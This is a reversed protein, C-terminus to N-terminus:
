EYYIKRRDCWWLTEVNKVNKQVYEIYTLYWYKYFNKKNFLERIIVSTRNTKRNFKIKSVSFNAHCSNKFVTILTVLKYIETIIAKTFIKSGRLSSRRFIIVSWLLFGYDFFAKDNSTLKRKSQNPNDAYYLRNNMFSMWKKLIKQILRM